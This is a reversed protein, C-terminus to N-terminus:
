CGFSAATSLTQLSFTSQALLNLINGKAWFDANYKPWVSLSSDHPDQLSTLSASSTAQKRLSLEWMKFATNFTVCLM